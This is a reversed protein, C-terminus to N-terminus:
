FEAVTRGGSSDKDIRRLLSKEREYLKGIDAYTLSRGDASTISQAGSELAEIATQVSELQKALTRVAM